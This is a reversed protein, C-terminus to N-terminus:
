KIKRKSPNLVNYEALKAEEKILLEKLLELREPDKEAAIMAKFHAINEKFIFDSM